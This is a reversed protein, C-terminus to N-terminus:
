ELHVEALLVGGEHVRDTETCHTGDVLTLELEPGAAPVARRELVVDVLVHAGYPGLEPVDPPPHSCTTLTLLLESILM